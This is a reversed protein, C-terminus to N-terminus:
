GGSASGGKGQWVRYAEMLDSVPVGDITMGIVCSETIAAGTLNADRIRLGSLDVNTWVAGKMTANDVVLGSMDADGITTKLMAVRRFRSHALDADAADIQYRGDKIDM